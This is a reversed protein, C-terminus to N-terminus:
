NKIRVRGTRIPCNSFSYVDQDRKRLISHLDNYDPLKVEKNSMGYMAGFMLNKRRTRHAREKKRILRVKALTLRSTKM